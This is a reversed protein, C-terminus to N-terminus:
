QLILLIGIKCGVLAHYTETQYFNLSLISVLGLQDSCRHALSAKKKENSEHLAAEEGERMSRLYLSGHRAVFQLWAKEGITSTM